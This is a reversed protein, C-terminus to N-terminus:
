PHFINFTYILQQNRQILTENHAVIFIVFKHVFPKVVSSGGPFISVTRYITCWARM